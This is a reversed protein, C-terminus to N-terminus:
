MSTQLKNEKQKQWLKEGGKSEILHSECLTKGNIIAKASQNCLDCKLNSLPNEKNKERSKRQYERNRARKQEAILYEDIENCEAEYEYFSPM